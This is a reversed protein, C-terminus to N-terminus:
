SGVELFPHDTHWVGMAAEHGSGQWSRAGYFAKITAPQLALSELTGPGPLGADQCVILQNDTSPHHPMGCM